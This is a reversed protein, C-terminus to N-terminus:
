RNFDFFGFYTYLKGNPGYVANYPGDRDLMDIMRHSCTTLGGIKNEAFQNREAMNKPRFSYVLPSKKDFSKEM